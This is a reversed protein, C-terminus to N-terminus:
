VSGRVRRDTSRGPVVTVLRLPASAEVAELDFGKTDRQLTAQDPREGEPV